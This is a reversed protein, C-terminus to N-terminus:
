QSVHDDNPFDGHVLGTVLQEGPEPRGKREDAAQQNGRGKAAHGWGSSGRLPGREREAAHHIGGSGRGTGHSQVDDGNTTTPTVGAGM